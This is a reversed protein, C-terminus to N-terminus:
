SHTLIQRWLLESALVQGERGQQDGLHQCKIYVRSMHHTQEPLQNLSLSAFTSM